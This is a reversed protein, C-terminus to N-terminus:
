SLQGIAREGIQRDLRECFSVIVISGEFGTLQKLIVQQVRGTTKRRVRVDAELGVYKGFPDGPDIVMRLKRDGPCVAPQLRDASHADHQLGLGPKRGIGSIRAGEDIDEGVDGRHENDVIFTTPILPPHNVVDSNWLHRRRARVAMCLESFDSLPVGRDEFSPRM